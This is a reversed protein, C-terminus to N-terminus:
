EQEAHITQKHKRLDGRIETQYKCQNCCYVLDKQVSEQHKHVSEKHLRFRYQRSAKYGCEECNYVIGEHKSKIHRLLANRLSFSLQCKECKNLEKSYAQRESLSAMNFTNEKCVANEHVSKTHGKLHDKRTTEYDCLRCFYTIGEHKSRIHRLLNKRQKYSTNCEECVYFPNNEDDGTRKYNIKNENSDHIKKHDFDGDVNGDVDVDDDVNDDNDVYNLLDDIRAQNEAHIKETLRNMQLDESAKALINIIDKNFRTEGQYIFQLISFLEKHAVGRLYILPHSHPYDLLINHFFPSSISLVSRHAHFLQQDDSVLTVDSFNDEVFEDSSIISLNRKLETGKRNIDNKFM